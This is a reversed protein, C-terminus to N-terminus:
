TMGGLEAVDLGVIEIEKPIRLIGLKKLSLFFLVSWFTVWALIVALGGM